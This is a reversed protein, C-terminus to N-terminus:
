NASANQLQLTAADRQANGPSGYLKVLDVGLIEAIAIAEELKLPQSGSEVRVVTQQVWPFSRRTLEQALQAQTMNAAKRFRRINVGLRKNFNTSEPQDTMGALYVIENHKVVVLVAIAKNHM